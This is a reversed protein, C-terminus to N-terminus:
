LRTASASMDPIQGVHGLVSYKIFGLSLGMRFTGLHSQSRVAIAYYIGKAPRTSTEASASHERFDTMM